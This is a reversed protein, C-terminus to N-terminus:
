CHCAKGDYIPNTPTFNARASKEAENMLWIKWLLGKVEGNLGFKPAAHLFHKELDPRPTKFKFNIQLIKKM